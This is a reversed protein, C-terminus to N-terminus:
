YHRVGRNAYTACYNGSYTAFSQVADTKIEHRGTLQLCVMGIQKRIEALLVGIYRSLKGISVQCSGALWRHDMHRVDAEGVLSEGVTTAHVFACHKAM